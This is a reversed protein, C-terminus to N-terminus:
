LSGCRWNWLNGGTDKNDLFKILMRHRRGQALMRPTKNNNDPEEPSAGQM